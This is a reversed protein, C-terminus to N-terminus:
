FSIQWGCLLEHRTQEAWASRHSLILSQHALFQWSLTNALDWSIEKDGQLWDAEETLLGSSFYDMYNLAWDNGESGQVTGAALFGWTLNSALPLNLEATLNLLNAGKAYGLPERDHSYMTINMYHAYTWPRIATLEVTLRSPAAAKRIPSPLKLSAGAQLAYKNGWWNSFIKRFTLEDLTFNAYLTLNDSPKLNAGCYMMLNDTDNLNHKAVRWFLVPLLYGLDLDRNGYIVNEGAYLVLWDYPEYTMQHLALYKRPYMPQGNVTVTSDAALFGHLFAFRVDGLKEEHAFFNYDNCRDSLIISSSISNGIQFKGRGVALNFYKDNYSLSGNLNDLWIKNPDRNYYSDILTADEAADLDFYYTGNWWNAKVKFRDNLQSNVKLGMYLFGYPGPTSLTQEFGTFFNAEASFDVASDRYAYQLFGHRPQKATFVDALSTTLSKWGLFSHFLGPEAFVPERWSYTDNTQLASSRILSQIEPQLSSGDWVGQAWAFGM